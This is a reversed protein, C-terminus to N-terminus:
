SYLCTAAGITSPALHQRAPLRLGVLPWNAISLKRAILSRRPLMPLQPRNFSAPSDCSDSDDEVPSVMRSTSRTPKLLSLAVPWVLHEHREQPPLDLWIDFFTALNPEDGLVWVNSSYKHPASAACGSLSLPSFLPLLGRPECISPCVLLPGLLPM